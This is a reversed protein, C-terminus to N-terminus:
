NLWRKKNKKNQVEEDSENANRLRGYDKERNNKKNEKKKEIRDLSEANWRSKM